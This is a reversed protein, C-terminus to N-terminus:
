LMRAFRVTSLSLNAGGVSSVSSSRYKFVMEAGATISISILAILSTGKLIVSAPITMEKRKKPTM